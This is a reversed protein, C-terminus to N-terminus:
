KRGVIINASLVGLVIAAIIYIFGGRHGLKDINRWFYLIGATVAVFGWPLGGAVPKQDTVKQIKEKGILPQDLVPGDNKSKSYHKLVFNRNRRCNACLQVVKSKDLANATGCVCVWQTKTCYAYQKAGRGAIGRLTAIEDSSLAAERNKATCLKQEVGKTAKQPATAGQSWDQKKILNNATDGEKPRNKSHAGRQLLLNVMPWRGSSAAKTLPSVGRDDKCNPNAGGDLLLEAVDVHPTTCVAMLATMGRHISANVEVGDELLKRVTDVDGQSSAIILTEEDSNANPYLTTVSVGHSNASGVIRKQLSAKDAKGGHQRILDAIRSHDNMSAVEAPTFGMDDTLSPDAGRDLLTKVTEAHNYAAASILPSRGLSNKANIKAGQDLLSLVTATEGAGAASNLQEDLSKAGAKAIHSDSSVMVSEMEGKLMNEPAALKKGDEITDLNPM